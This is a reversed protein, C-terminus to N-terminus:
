VGHSSEQLVGHSVDSDRRATVWDWDHKEFEGWLPHRRLSDGIEDDIQWGATRFEDRWWTLPKITVHTPDEKLADRGQREYLDSTDLACFILGGPRTVRLLERLTYLVYDTRWHEAVQATHICDFTADSCMHLNALDCIHLRLEPWQQRGRAIMSECLDVGVCEFAGARQIGRAISGCACGADLVLRGELELADVFWRGYKEQWDSYVAYDLGAAVHEQYYREDFSKATLM